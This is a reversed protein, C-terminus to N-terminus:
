CLGLKKNIWKKNEIYWEVTKRFGDVPTTEPYWGLETTIKHSSVGYRRDHGPRDNVYKVLNYGDTVSKGLQKQKTMEYIVIDIIDNNTYECGSGINYTEGVKGDIFVKEIAKAHDEVYIWERVNEGTGYVPIEKNNMICSIIKPVFKEPHQGPGYNNTCHSIIIPMGYTDYFSKVILDSAAKSASYPSHPNYPSDEHFLTDGYRTNLHFKSLKLDGYVEDTSIHYFLKGDFGGNNNWYSKLVNLLVSTGLVNTEVFLNSNNISNDVHSEAALHIVGDIDYTSVIQSISNEDCIDVCHFIYNKNKSFDETNEYSSAYTMKDVNVILWDPHNNVLLRCLHSGIFGLGGTVMIKRKYLSNLENKFDFDGIM